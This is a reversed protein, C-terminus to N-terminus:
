SVGGPINVEVKKSLLTAFAAALIGAADEEARLKKQRWAVQGDPRVLLAGTAEIESLRKLLERRDPSGELRARALPLTGALRAGAELWLDGREAAILTFLEGALLAHSSRKCADDLWFHPFRAGPRTGPRYGTVEDALRVRETGDPLVAGAEYSYGLDLGIRDFHAIQRAISSRVAHQRNPDALIKGLGRMPIRYLWARLRDRAASSLWALPPLSMLFALRKLHAPNLGLTRPVELMDVYNRLSENCNQRIVPSRESEYTDLLAEGAQGRLVFALKWCLNHADGIGSNMGLGGTPPFRHAADGVLFARGQRFREAVQATMRWSSISEIRVDIDAGLATRILKQFVAPTYDEIKEYPTEVPVHYVWRKRPHHAILVGPAIPNFIWYLKAKTKVFKSLDNTFYANAFDQIKEPGRMAIGLSERLRGGAGEACIVYQCTITFREGDPRRTIQCRVRDGTEQIGECQHATLTRGHPAHEVHSRIIKELEVQSINLYPEPSALHEAYKKDNGGARLDIQGFQENITRCFVIRAATEQDSAERQLEALDLGLSRLIEISRAGLEHARPHELPTERREVLIHDIGLRSLCLASVMGAPGGGVILVETELDNM